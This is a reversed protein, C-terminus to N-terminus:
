GSPINAPELRRRTRSFIKNGPEAELAQDAMRIASTMDGLVSFIHASCAAAYPYGARAAAFFLHFDEKLAFGRVKTKGTLVRMSQFAPKPKAGLEGQILSRLIQEGASYDAQRFHVVANKLPYIPNEPDLAHAKELIEIAQHSEIDEELGLFAWQYGFASELPHYDAAHVELEALVLESARRKSFLNGVSRRPAGGIISAVLAFVSNGAYIHDCRAMLAMEFFARYTSDHFESAGFDDASFSGTASKLYELTVRDQGVLLTDVGRSSLEAVIPKALASPIVKRAFNLKSRHKGLVIDGSRLHLAATPRVFQRSCAAALANGVGDSFGIKRFAATTDFDRAGSFLQGGSQQDYFVRLIGFDNCIWGKFGERSAAKRLDSPSFSIRELTEFGDEDLKEGLWHRDIFEASFIRDAVEIVHFQRDTLEQRNWTFGFRCGIKDALCISNVIALLRGGLGDTRSAVIVKDSLSSM